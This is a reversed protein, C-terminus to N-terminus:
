SSLNSAMEKEYRVKERKREYYNPIKKRPAFNKWSSWRVNLVYNALLLLIRVNNTRIQIFIQSPIKQSFLNYVSAVNFFDLHNVM